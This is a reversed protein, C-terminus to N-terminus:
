EHEYTKTSSAASNSSKRAYFARKVQEALQDFSEVTVRPGAPKQRILPTFTLNYQEDPQLGGVSMQGAQIHYFDNRMVYSKDPPNLRCEPLRRVLENLVPLVVERMYDPSPGKISTKRYSGKTIASYFADANTRYDEVLQRIDM